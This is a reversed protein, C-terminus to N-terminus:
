RDQPEPDLESENKETCTWCFEWMLALEEPDGKGHCEIVVLM